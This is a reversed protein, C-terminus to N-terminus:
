PAEELSKGTVAVFVDGLDPQRLGISKVAGPPLSEVLRPILSHGQAATLELGHDIPRPEIDQEALVATLESVAATEVTIISETLRAKLDAPSGEAVVRGEDLFILHDCREAEDPRHTVLLASVENGGALEDLDRWFRRYQLEDLGSTPEDLLLLEPGHVLARALEVRRKLGGSLEGVRDDARDKLGMAELLETVRQQLTPGRQGYFGASIVLNEKATLLDDLSPSQFVVGCRGRFDPDGVAVTQGKFTMEGEQPELLGALVKFLTSKGAGNPGLIGLRQGVELELSFTDLARRQGYAHSIKSLKLLSQSM